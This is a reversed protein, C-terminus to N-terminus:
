VARPPFYQCRTWESQGRLQHYSIESGSPRLHSHVPVSCFRVSHGAPQALASVPSLSQRAPIDYQMCQLWGALPLSTLVAVMGRVSARACMMFGACLYV